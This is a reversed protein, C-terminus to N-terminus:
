AVKISQRHGLSCATAFILRMMLWPWVVLLRTHGPLSWIQDLPPPRTPHRQPRTSHLQPYIYEAAVQLVISIPRYKGWFRLSWHELRIEVSRADQWLTLSASILHAHKLTHGFRADSFCRTRLAGLAKTSSRSHHHPPCHRTNKWSPATGSETDLTCLTSAWRCGSPGSESATHRTPEYTSREM